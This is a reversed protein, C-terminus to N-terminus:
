AQSLAFVIRRCNPGGPSVTLICMTAVAHLEATCLLHRRAPQSLLRIGTSLVCYLRVEAFDKFLGESVQGVYARARSVEASWDTDSQGEVRGVFDQAAVRVQLCHAPEMLGM